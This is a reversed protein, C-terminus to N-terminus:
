PLNKVIQPGITNAAWLPLRRWLSVAARFKPNDANLGPLESSGSMWYHWYLPVEKAGWQKKFRWTGSGSTCRGFDFVEYREIEAFELMKWYLFMNVGLRDASRLSAAWPVELTGRHGITLSAAVTEEGLTAVFVRAEEPLAEMVTRFWRLPYVPIGLDRYKKAFVSYFEPLREPGGVECEIGERLPRKIQSRRKAGLQKWLDDSNGTLKLHMSVKDSRQRWGAITHTHRLEIHDVGLDHGLREATGLLEREVEANDALIGGYNVYPMSVLFDGFALSRLRVLPLVGRIGDDDFAALYSASKGFTRAIMDRWLWRHYISSARHGAVYTDWASSETEDVIRVRTAM